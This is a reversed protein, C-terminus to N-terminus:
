RSMAEYIEEYRDLFAAKEKEPLTGIAELLAAEVRRLDEITQLDERLKTLEKLISTM